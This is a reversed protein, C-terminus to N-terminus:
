AFRRSILYIVYAGSLFIAELTFFMMLFSNNIRLLMRNSPSWESAPPRVQMAKYMERAVISFFRLLMAYFGIWFVAWFLPGVTDSIHSLGYANGSLAFHLFALFVLNPWLGSATAFYLYYDGAARVNSKPYDRRVGSTVLGAALVLALSFILPTGSNAVAEARQTSRLENEREAMRRQYQQLSTRADEQASETQQLAEARPVNKWVVAKPSSQIKKGEARAADIVGQQRKGEAEVNAQLAVIENQLMGSERTEYWNLFSLLLSVLVLGELAFVFPSSWRRPSVIAAYPILEANQDVMNKQKVFPMFGPQQQWQLRFQEVPSLEGAVVETENADQFVTEM